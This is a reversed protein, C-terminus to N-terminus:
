AGRRAGSCGGEQSPKGALEKPMGKIREKALEEVNRTSSSRTSSRPAEALEAAGKEQAFDEDVEM